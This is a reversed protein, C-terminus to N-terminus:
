FRTEAMNLTAEYLSYQKADFEFKKVSEDFQELEEIAKGM